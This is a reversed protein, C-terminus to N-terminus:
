RTRSVLLKCYDPKLFEYTFMLPTGNIDQNIQQLENIPTGEEILLFESLKNDTIRATIEIITIGLELQCKSELIDYFSFDNNTLTLFAGSILPSVYVESYAVPIGDATRVRRFRLVDADEEIDLAKHIKSDVKTLTKEFFSVGAKHGNSEIIQRMSLNNNLTNYIYDVDCNLYTGSGQRTRLIGKTKLSNILDRLVFRSLGLDECMTIEPPLKENVKLKKDKIYSILLSESRNLAM